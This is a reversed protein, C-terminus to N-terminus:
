DSVIDSHPNEQIFEYLNLVHDFQQIILPNHSITITLNQKYIVPLVKSLFFSLLNQDINSSIEDLLLLKQHYSLLGMLNVMQTQGSSLQHNHIDELSLHTLSLFEMVLDQHQQFDLLTFFPDSLLGTDNRLYIIQNQYAEQHLNTLSFGNILVEFNPNGHCLSWMLHSKGIGSPGVICLPQNIIIDHPIVLNKFSPHNFQVQHIDYIKIKNLQHDIPHGIIQNLYNDQQKLEPYHVLQSFISQFGGILSNNLALIFFYSSIAPLNNLNKYVIIIFLILNGVQTSVMKAIGLLENKVGMVLNVDFNQIGTSSFMSLQDQYFHRHFYSNKFRYLRNILNKQLNNYRFNIDFMTQNYKREILALVLLVVCMVVGVVFYFYDTLCLLFGCGLLSLVGIIIESVGSLSFNILNMLYENIVFLNTQQNFFDKNNRFVIEWVQGFYKIFYVQLTQKYYFSSLLNTLIKLVFLLGFALLIWWFNQLSSQQIVYKTIYTLFLGSVIAILNNVLKFMSMILTPKWKISKLKVQDSAYYIKNIVLVQVLYAQQFEDWNYRHKFGHKNVVQISQDDRFCLEYNLEDGVVQCAFFYHQDPLDLLAQVDILESEVNQQALQVQYDQFSQLSYNQDKDLVVLDNKKFFLNLAELNTQSM